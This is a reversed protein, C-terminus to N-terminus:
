DGEIRSTTKQMLFIQEKPMKVMEYFVACQASQLNDANGSAVYLSLKEAAVLIGSPRYEWARYHDGFTIANGATTEEEVVVQHHLITGDDSWRPVSSAGQITSLAITNFKITSAATLEPIGVSFAVMLVRIVIGRRLEVPTNIEQETLTNLTTQTVEGRLVRM